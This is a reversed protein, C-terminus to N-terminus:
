SLPWTPVPPWQGCSKASPLHAPLYLSRWTAARVPTTTRELDPLLSSPFSGSPVGSPFNRLCIRLHPPWRWRSFALGSVLSPLYRAPYWDRILWSPPLASEVHVQVVPHPQGRQGRWAHSRSDVSPLCSLQAVLGVILRCSRQILQAGPLFPSTHM